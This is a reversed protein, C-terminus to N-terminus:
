NAEDQDVFITKPNVTPYIFLIIWPEDTTSRFGHVIRAPAILAAGTGASFKEDGCTVEGNGEVVYFAEEIYHYHLPLCGGPELLLEGITTAAADTDENILRRLKVGTFETEMWDLKRNQIAPM